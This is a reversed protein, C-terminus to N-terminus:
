GQTVVAERSRRVEELERELRQLRQKLLAHEDQLRRSYEERGPATAWSYGPYPDSWSWCRHPHDCHCSM